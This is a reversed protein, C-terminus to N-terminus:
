EFYGEACCLNGLSDTNQTEPCTERPALTNHFASPHPRRRYPHLPNSLQSPTPQPPIPRLIPSHHGSDPKPQYLRILLLFISTISSKCRPRPPQRPRLYVTHAAHSNHLQKQSIYSFLCVVLNRTQLKSPVKLLKRSQLLYWILM